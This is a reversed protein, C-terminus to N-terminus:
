VGWPLSGHDGLDRVVVLAGPIGNGKIVMAGTFLPEDISLDVFTSTATADPTPTPTSMPSPASTATPTTPPPTPTSTLAPTNTPLSTPTSTATPTFTPLPTKTPTPTPTSTSTLTPTNTPAFTPTSTPLLTSTATPTPMSTLAPTNTPLSTPTSTPSPISTSTPTPTYTPLPTNTATPTPTSTPTLTPTNTPLPTSTVTPNPTNTPEFGFLWEELNTYGDGDDDGSPDDPLDLVHHPEGLAPWGGVDDQSDIIRGTGNLVDSIIRRDVADRDWPRAGAEALVWDLVEGSPRVTLPDVWIPPTDVRPDFGLGSSLKAVSWPDDTRGPAENDELYGQTGPQLGYTFYIKTADSETDLGPIIVNGVASVLLPGSRGGPDALFFGLTGPNYIVNNIVITSTDGFVGPNREAGHAILNGIVSIRRTHDGVLLSMSHGPEGRYATAKLAEGIICNRITVDYVNRFWLSVTEDTGWSFSCHDVVVNYAPESEPQNISTGLIQLADRDGPWPGEKRDGPRVRLHQILVDHTLVRIGSGALTVGPSPATQGAITVFPEKIDWWREGPASWITGGVEFVIVKPGKVRLAQKLSGPGDYNLTTVRVLQGGRGASTDVGFGEAGPFVPLDSLSSKSVFPLFVQFTKRGDKSGPASGDQAQPHNRDVYYTTGIGASQNVTLDRTKESPNVSAKSVLSIQFGTTIVVVILSVITIRYRM